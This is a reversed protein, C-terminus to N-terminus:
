LGFERAVEEPTAERVFDKTLWQEAQSPMMVNYGKSISGVGVWSANKTSHVAVKDTKKPKVAKNSVNDKRDAASSGIAGSKTPQIKGQKTGGNRKTGSSSIVNDGTTEPVGKIKEKVTSVDIDLEESM